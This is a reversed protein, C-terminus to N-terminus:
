TASSPTVPPGPGSRLEEEEGAFKSSVRISSLTHRGQSSCARLHTLSLDQEIASIQGASDALWGGGLPARPGPHCQGPWFPPKRAQSGTVLGRAGHGMDQPSSFQLVQLTSHTPLPSSQGHDSSGSSRRLHRPVRQGSPQDPTPTLPQASLCPLASKSPAPAPSQTTTVSSLSDHHGLCCASTWRRLCTSLSWPMTELARTKSNGCSM